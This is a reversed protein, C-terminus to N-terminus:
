ELEKIESFYKKVADRYKDPVEELPLSEGQVDSEGDITMRESEDVEVKSATGRGSETGGGRGSHGVGPISLRSPGFMPTNVSSYGGTSYGDNADGGAGGGGKGVSNGAGSGMSQMMQQLTMKMDAPVKFKMPGQGQCMGGFPEGENEERLQKLRELALTALRLSEKGNQNTAAVSAKKMTDPIDLADIMDAFKIASALLEEYGSGLKGAAEKLTTALTELAKRIEAQRNGLSELLRLDKAKTSQEFRQLSNVLEEQRRLINMFDGAKSMVDHIRALEEASAMQQEMQERAGGMASLLQSATSGSDARSGAASKLAQAAENMMRSTTRAFEALKSDMEYIPFDEALKNLTKAAQEAAKAAQKAAESVEADTKQSSAAADELERLADRVKKLADAAVRYRLMFDKITEKERLNQAYEEESIVQVRVVSSASVGMMNPNLDSAELYFELTQGPAAGLKKLDLVEDLEQRKVPSEPGLTKIRDRYGVVARVLEMRGLSLDDEAYGRLPIKVRPTAMVFSGPESISAAPPADVIIKQDVVFPDKNKTGQVDRIAIVLEANENATWEFVVSSSGRKKGVVVEEGSLGGKPIITVTGDLLPRNSIVELEVNSKRYVAFDENGVYFQRKPLRTYKPSSIVASAVAVRPQLLLDVKQWKTRAKGVAFCFEVPSVVKELRQAFVKGSEQFCAAKHQRGAHRTLMWVQSRLPKGTIEVTIEASGGYVVQPQTPTVNFVYSSYPPIDRLPMFVRSLITKSATMNLCCMIGAFLLQLSLVKLQRMTESVPYYQRFRLAKLEEYSRNVCRKLLFEHMEKGTSRGALLEDELELGSLVPRRKSALLRDARVAMDRDSTRFVRVLWVVGLLGFGILCVIDITLRSVPALALFFDLLSYVALLVLVLGTIKLVDRAFLGVQWYRRCRVLRAAFDSELKGVSM